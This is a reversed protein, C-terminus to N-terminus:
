RIEILADRNDEKAEIGRAVLRGIGLYNRLRM